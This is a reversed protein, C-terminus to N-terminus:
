DDDKRDFVKDDIEFGIVNLYYIKESEDSQQNDIEEILLDLKRNFTDFQKETWNSQITKSILQNDTTILGYQFLVDITRNIQSNIMGKTSDSIENQYHNLLKPNVKFGNHTAVYYKYVNSGKVESRNIKVMNYKELEKLHYFIKAKPISLYKGIETATMEKEILLMSIEMRLKDSICKLKEFTNIEFRNQEM